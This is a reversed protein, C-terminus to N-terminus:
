GERMDARVYVSRVQTLCASPMRYCSPQGFLKM